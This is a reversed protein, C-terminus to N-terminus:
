RVLALAIAVGFANFLVHSVIAAGLRGTVVTVWAHLVGVAFLSFAISLFLSLDGVTEYLHGASFIAASLVIALATARSRVEAPAPQPHPARRRGRLFANRIARLLLGRFVLEEVVPAVLSGVLFGNIIIWTPDHGFSVNSRTPAHGTGAIVFGAVFVQVIKALVAIGLGIALDIPRFALGFDRALRGLGRRRSIVIVAAAVLLYSGLGSIFTFPGEAAPLRLVLYLFSLGITVPFIGIVIAADPLGWRVGAPPVDPLARPRPPPPPTLVAWGPPPAWAPPPTAPRPAPSPAHPDTM